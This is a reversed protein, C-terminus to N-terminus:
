IKQKEFRFDSLALGPPLELHIEIIEATDNLFYWSPWSPNKTWDNLFGWHGSATKSWVKQPSPSALNTKSIVLREGQALTYDTFIIQTSMKGQAPTSYTGSAGINPTAIQWISLAIIAIVGIWFFKAGLEKKKFLILTIGLIVVMSSIWAIANPTLSKLMPFNISGIQSFIPKDISFNLMSLILMAVISFIILGWFVRYFYKWNVAEGALIGSQIVGLILLPLLFFAGWFKWFPIFFFFVVIASQGLFFINLAKTFKEGLELKFIRALFLSDVEVGGLFWIASATAFIWFLGLASITPSMTRQFVADIITLIFILFITEAVLASLCIKITKRGAQFTDWSLLQKTFTWM